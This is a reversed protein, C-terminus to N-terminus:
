ASADKAKIANRVAEASTGHDLVLEELEEPTVGLEKTWYAVVYPEHVNIHSRHAPGRNTRDDPM